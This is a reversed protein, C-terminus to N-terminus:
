RLLHWRDNANNSLLMSFDGTFGPVNIQNLKPTAFRV